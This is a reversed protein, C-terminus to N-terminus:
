IIILEYLSHIFIEILAVQITIINQSINWSYFSLLQLDQVSYVRIEGYQVTSYLVTCYQLHM